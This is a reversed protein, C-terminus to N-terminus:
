PLCKFNLRYCPPEEIAAKVGMIKLKSNIPLWRTGKLSNQDWNLLSVSPQEKRRGGGGGRDCMNRGEEENKMVILLFVAIAM